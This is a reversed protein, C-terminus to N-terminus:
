MGRLNAVFASSSALSGRGARKSHCAAPTGRHKTKPGSSSMVNNPKNTRRQYNANVLRVNAARHREYAGRGAAALVVGEIGDREKAGCPAIQPRQADDGGWGQCLLSSCARCTPQDLLPLTLM